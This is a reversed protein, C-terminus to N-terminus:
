VFRLELHDFYGRCIGYRGAVAAFITVALTVSVNHRCWIQTVAEVMVRSTRLLRM